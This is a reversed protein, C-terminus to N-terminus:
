VSPTSIFFVALDAHRREDGKWSVVARLETTGDADRSEVFQPHATLSSRGREVVTTLDRERVFMLVALKTDRWAQYGFLQDLTETFAKAGSWFKCEGIFLNRGEHRVLIDTKGGLNFGEATGAGRYHTNLADLIVHRLSEEGMAAYPKPNHEISLAHQRIVALIHEYVEDALVPELELPQDEGTAPLLPAPRRVIADAIYTKSRDAPPGVPLGTSQVHARHQEIRQRRNLIAALAQQKLAANYDALDNRSWTLHQEVKAILSDTQGKIDAPNDDPYEIVLRLEASAVDARPPNLSRTSAQLKFVHEEGTFPIHVVTRHGPVYTPTSPDFIARNFHDWSVDVQVAKPEDMWVNDADLTPAMVTYRDALAQAWQDEDARLVHDEPASEVEHSARGGYADLTGRLDGDYFM